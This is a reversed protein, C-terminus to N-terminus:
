ASRRRDLWVAGILLCGLVVVQRDSKLGALTLGYQVVQTLALGLATGLLGGEGGTLRTGGLVVVTIAALEYGLGADAKATAVRSVYIVAALGALLGSLGYVLIRMRNVPVGALRAAAENAGMARLARGGSTRGLFLALVCALVLWLVSPAPVWGLVSGQGLMAFTDPFGHVDESGSIGYALGRYVAMTSLTVILAPAAASEGRGRERLLILLVGNLVGAVLGVAMAASAALGIPLGGERWLMGLTVAALGMTSGVSLDIGGTLIVLTMGLALLGVEIAHRSMELMNAPVLFQPSLPALVLVAVGLLLVLAGERSALGVGRV